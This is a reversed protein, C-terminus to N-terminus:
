DQLCSPASELVLWSLFESDQGVGIPTPLVWNGRQHLQRQMKKLRVFERFWGSEQGRGENDIQALQGTEELSKFTSIVLCVMERLNPPGGWQLVFCGDSRWVSICSVNTASIMLVQDRSAGTFCLIHFFLSPFFLSPFFFIVSHWLCLGIGAELHIRSHGLRSHTGGPQGGQGLWVRTVWLTRTWWLAMSDEFHNEM